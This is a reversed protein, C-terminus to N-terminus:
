PPPFPCKVIGPLPQRFIFDILNGQNDYVAVALADFYKKGKCGLILVDSGNPFASPASDQFLIISDNYPGVIDFAIHGIPPLKSLDNDHTDYDAQYYRPYLARGQFIEVDSEVFSTLLSQNNMPLAQIKAQFYEPQTSYRPPILKESLPLLIGTMFIGASVWLLSSKRLSHSEDVETVPHIEGTIKSNLEVSRFYTILWISLHGLGIAYYLIGIWSVPTIYRGGSNRVLANILTYGLIAGLPIL